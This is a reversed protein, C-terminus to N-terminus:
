LIRWNELGSKENCRIKEVKEAKLKEVKQFAMAVELFISRFGDIAVLFFSKFVIRSADWKCM